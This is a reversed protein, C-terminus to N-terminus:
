LDPFDVPGENSGLVSLLLICGQVAVLGFLVLDAVLHSSRLLQTQAECSLVIYPLLSM